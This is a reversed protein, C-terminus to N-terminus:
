GEKERVEGEITLMQQSGDSATVTVNKSFKGIRTTDYRVEIEGKEGPMIVEKPFNAVTCGCSGKADTIFLKEKGKNVFSFKKVPDGGKDINGYNIHTTAFVLNSQNQAKLSFGLLTFFVLIFITKKM